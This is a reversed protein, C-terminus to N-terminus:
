RCRASDERPMWQWPLLGPTPLHSCCLLFPQPRGRPALDSRKVVGHLPGSDPGHTVSSSSSPVSLILRNGLGCLQPWARPQTTMCVVQLLFPSSALPDLLLCFPIAPLGQALTDEPPQLQIILQHDLGTPFLLSPLPTLLGGPGRAGGELPRLGPPSSHRSGPLSGPTGPSRWPGGPRHSTHEQTHPVHPPQISGAAPSRSTLCGVPGQLGSCLVRPAGPSCPAPSPSLMGAPHPRNLLRSAPVAAAWPSAM